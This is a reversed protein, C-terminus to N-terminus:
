ARVYILGITTASNPAAGKEDKWKNLVDHEIYGDISRFRVKYFGPESPAILTFNEHSEQNIFIGRGIDVATEAQERGKFGILLCHYKINKLQDKDLTCKLHGEIREGPKVIAAMHSGNFTVDSVTAPGFTSQEHFKKRFYTQLDEVKEGFKKAGKKIGAKANDITEGTKDVGKKLADATTEIGGKIKDGASEAYISNYSGLALLIVTSFVLGQKIKLRYNKM